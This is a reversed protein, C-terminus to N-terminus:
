NEAPVAGVIRHVLAAYRLGARQSDHEDECIRRAGRSLREHLASDAAIRGIAASLAAPDGPAVTLGSIDHLNVFPVGSRPICTSVVPVGYSMAEVQAMGYMEARTVSPMVVTLARQYLAALTGDCVAGALMVRGAAGPMAAQRGLTDALPGSGVIVVALSSDLTRAAAILVDFGKYPVLRGVALVLRRGRLFANVALMEPAGLKAAPLRGPFFPYPIVECKPALAERLYSGQTHMATPSVVASAQRISARELTRIFPSLIKYPLIDAHWLLILPKRWGCLAGIMGLPNPLHLLAADYHPSLAAIQRIYEFSLAKNGIEVNPRARIVNYPLELTPYARRKAFCLVDARIGEDLLATSIGETVTEIGGKDPDFYKAIQLLRLKFAAM